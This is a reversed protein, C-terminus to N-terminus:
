LSTDTSRVQLGERPWSAWGQAYVRGGWFRVEARDQLGLSPLHPVLDPPTPLRPAAWCTSSQTAGRGAHLGRLLPAGPGWSSLHTRALPLKREGPELSWRPAAVSSSGPCACGWRVEGDCARRRDGEAM